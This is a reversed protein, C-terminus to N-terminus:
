WTGYPLIRLIRAKWIKVPSFEEERSVEMIVCKEAHKFMDFIFCEFKIANNKEPNIM